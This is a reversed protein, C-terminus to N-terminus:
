HLLAILTYENTTCKHKCEKLLEMGMWGDLRESVVVDQRFKVAREIAIDQAQIETNTDTQIHMKSVNEKQETQKDRV